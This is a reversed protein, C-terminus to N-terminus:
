SEAATTNKFSMEFWQDKGHVVASPGILQFGAKAYLPKLEDKCLLRAEQVGSAAGGQEALRALYARLMKSALGRRRLAPDVVVSHICLLTGEPEHKYMSEHILESATTLTGNTFGALTGRGEGGEDQLEALLFFAGAEKIRSEINAM